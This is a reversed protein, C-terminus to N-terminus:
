GSQIGAKAPMVSFDKDTTKRVLPVTPQRSARGFKPILTRLTKM